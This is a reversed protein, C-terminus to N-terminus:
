SAQLNRGETLYEDRTVSIRDVARLDGSISLIISALLTLSFFPNM